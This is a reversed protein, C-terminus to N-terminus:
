QKGGKKGSPKVGEFSGMLASTACEIIRDLIESAWWPGPMNCIRMHGCISILDNRIFGLAAIGRFCLIRAPVSHGQGIGFMRDLATCAALAAGILILKWIGHEAKSRSFHEGQKRASATAAIWDWAKVGAVAMMVVDWGGCATLVIAGASCAANVLWDRYHVMTDTTVSM